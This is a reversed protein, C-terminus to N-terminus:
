EEDILDDASIRSANAIMRIGEVADSKRKYGESSVAISEGNKAEFTWRWERKADRYLKFRGGSM